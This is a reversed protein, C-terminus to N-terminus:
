LDVRAVINQDSKLRQVRTLGNFERALTVSRRYSDWDLVLEGHFIQRNPRVDNHITAHNSTNALWNRAASQQAGSIYLVVRCPECASFRLEM